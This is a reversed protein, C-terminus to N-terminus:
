QPLWSRSLLNGCSGQVDHVRLINAGKLLAITNLCTTGNLAHDPTTALNELDNVKKIVRGSHTQKFNQFLELANLLEFNQQATKAFGFGPDVIIDKLGM